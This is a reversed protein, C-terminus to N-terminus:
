MRLCRRRCRWRLIIWVGKPGTLGPVALRTNQFLFFCAAGPGSRAPVRASRMADTHNFILASPGEILELRRERRERRFAGSGM